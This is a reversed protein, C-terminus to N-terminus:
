QLLLHCHMNYLEDLTRCKIYVCVCVCVCIYIYVCVCVCLYICIYVCICVCVCVCVCIYIYIYIYITCAFMKVPKQTNPKIFLHMLNHISSHVSNIYWLIEVVGRTALVTEQARYPVYFQQMIQLFAFILDSLVGQLFFM